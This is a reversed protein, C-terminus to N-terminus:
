CGLGEPDTWLAWVVERPAQILRTMTLERGAKAVETRAKTTPRGRTM